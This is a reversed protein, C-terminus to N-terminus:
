DTSDNTKDEPVGALQALEMIIEKKIIDVWHPQLPYETTADDFCPAATDCGCCTQFERLDLPDEFVGTVTLCNLFKVTNNNQGSTVYIYGDDDLFSYVARQFSAGDLYSTRRKSIFNFPVSLRNTPKVSNIAVKTHLELPTPIPKTTRLLTDCEIDIGCENASIIELDICFTQKISNDFTRQYNNLDQRLYKARKINYLYVIYRDSLETDDSYQSLAERVDYILKDLKM